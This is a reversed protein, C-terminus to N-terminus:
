WFYVLMGIYGEPTGIASGSDYDSICRSSQIIEFGRLSNFGYEMLFKTGNEHQTKDDYEKISFM